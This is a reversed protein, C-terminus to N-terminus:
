NRESRIGKQVAGSAASHRPHSERGIYRGRASDSFPVSSIVSAVQLSCVHLRISHEGARPLLRFEGKLVREGKEMAGITHLNRTQDPYSTIILPSANENM